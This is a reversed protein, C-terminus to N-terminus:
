AAVDRKTFLTWAILQFVVYYAVLMTISFGLTMEPRLPSNGPLYQTLDINAFLLYKSWEYGSLLMTVTNGVLMFLLSFAIAMSSSRFAASIMFALTVYMLLSIVAYGYKQLSNVVMSSEHVVGDAGVNLHPLSLGDFGQLVAGAGFALAFSLLLLLLAFTMTSIYKSLMIKSRSAPGVLLLKITGWTFEAAIMDAAVIVTLITILMVLAASSNVYDWLSLAHPNMDNALYYENIKIEKTLYEKYDSDLDKNDAMQQQYHANQQTLGAKWDGGSSRSEDWKMLGSMLGLALVLFGVMLWTRPRRYIKMNENRILNGLSSM